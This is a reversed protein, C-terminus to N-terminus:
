AAAHYFEAAPLSASSRAVVAGPAVAAYTGVSQRRHM